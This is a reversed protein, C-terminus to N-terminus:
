KATQPMQLQQHVENHAFDSQEPDLYSLHQLEMIMSGLAQCARHQQSIDVLRVARGIKYTWERDELQLM